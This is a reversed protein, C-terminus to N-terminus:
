VFLEGGLKGETKGKVEREIKQDKTYFWLHIAKISKAQNPNAPASPEISPPILAQLHPHAAKEKVLILEIELHLRVM